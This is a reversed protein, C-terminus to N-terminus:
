SPKHNSNSGLKPAAIASGKKTSGPVSNKINFGITYKFLLM